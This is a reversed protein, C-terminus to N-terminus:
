GPGTPSGSACATPRRCTRAHGRRPRRRGRRRPRRAHRASRHAAPGDRRRDPRPRRGARSLQDTAHLGHERALDDLRDTLTRGESKLRPPSSAPRAAARLRRGQRPGPRPRRLLRAGGRLRVRPGRRPRDVQLRDADGPAAPRRRRRAHRAALLVRDLQRLRGRRGSRLLYTASCRASRTAACCGGATRTRAGGGRVPGRGPRQRGRRGRRGRRRAGARPGHRGAGGPQPVRRDPLGPRARGARDRRAAGRVRGAGAGAAVTAGGVGHLPTYVVTLDRPGDRTSWPPSTTSTPTSSTRASGADLRRGRPVDALPGVADIAASIEADAPPVIQSGDGLYVKYGNDQPPNHSATVMVGAVCGLARIAYALVPTPLPRPLLVADLGAGAMVAATDEAFVESNHRADYGVVVTGGAHGQERLYAALGAAARIVVVRNMRNPGAGLAGRLGATGFELRGDFRTPSSPPRVPRRRGGPRALDELEARTQPDPDEAAWARARGLLEQPDRTESMPRVSTAASAPHTVGGAPPRRAAPRHDADPPVPRSFLFGQGLECGLDRLLGLQATTEIGEAISQLDLGEAMHVVSRVIKETHASGELKAVFSRDIKVVDAAFRHLYRLSSYGTGYDDVAVSVGGARLDAVVTVATEFDVALAQETLELVIQDPEIGHDAVLALM